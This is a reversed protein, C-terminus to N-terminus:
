RDSLLPTARAGHGTDADLLLEPAGVAADHGM